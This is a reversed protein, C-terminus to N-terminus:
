VTRSRQQMRHKQSVIQSPSLEYVRRFVRTFYLPDKFGVAFASEKVSYGERDIMQYARALRERNIVASPSMGLEAKFLQNIYGPTLNFASALEQRTLPKVLHERIYELMAQMRASPSTTGPTENRWHAALLLLIEDAISNVLERRFPRYSDYYGAMQKFREAIYRPDELHTIRPPNIELQYDGAAWRGLPTLEFHIGSIWGEDQGSALQFRHRRNPEIFLVDGYQLSIAPQDLVCYEFEGALICILQLDPLSRDWTQSATVQHYNAIRVITRIEEIKLLLM